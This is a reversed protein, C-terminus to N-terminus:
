VTSEPMDERGRRGDPWTIPSTQSQSISRKPESKSPKPEVQWDSIADRSLTSQIWTPDVHHSMSWASSMSGSSATLWGVSPQSRSLMKTQFRDRSGASPIKPGCSTNPLPKLLTMPSTSPTHSFNECTRVQGGNGCRRAGAFARVGGGNRATSAHGTRPGTRSVAEPARGYLMNAARKIAESQPAQAPSEQLSRAALRSRCSM